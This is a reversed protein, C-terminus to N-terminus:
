LELFWSISYGLKSNEISHAIEPTELQTIQQTVAIKELDDLIPDIKLILEHMFPNVCFTSITFKELKQHKFANTNMSNPMFVGNRPFFQKLILM